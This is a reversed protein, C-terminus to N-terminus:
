TMDVDCRLATRFGAEGAEAPASLLGGLGLVNFGRPWKKGEHIQNLTSM